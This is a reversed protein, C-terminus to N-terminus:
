NRPNNTAKNKELTNFLRSAVGLEFPTLTVKRKSCKGYFPPSFCHDVFYNNAGLARQMTELAFLTLGQNLVCEDQGEYGHHGDGNQDGQAVLDLAYERRDGALELRGLVAVLEWFPESVQSTGDEQTM